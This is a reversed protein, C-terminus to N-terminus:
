DDDPIFIFNFHESNNRYVRGEEKCFSFYVLVNEVCKTVLHM